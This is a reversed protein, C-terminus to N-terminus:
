VSQKTCDSKESERLERAKRRREIEPWINREFYEPHMHQGYKNQLELIKDRRETSVTRGILSDLSMGLMDAIQILTNLKPPHKETEINSLTYRSIGCEKAFWEASMGLKKREMRIRKGLEKPVSFYQMKQEVYDPFSILEDLPEGLKGCLRVHDIYEDIFNCESADPKQRANGLIDKTHGNLANETNKM